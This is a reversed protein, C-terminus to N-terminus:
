TERGATTGAAQRQRFRGLDVAFPSGVARLHDLYFNYLVMPTVEGYDPHNFTSKYRVFGLKEYLTVLPDNCDIVTVPAERGIITRFAARTIQQFLGSRRYTRDIMLKSTFAVGGPHRAALGSFDYWDDRPMPGDGSFTIRCAGIVRDRADFAALNTSYEDMPEAIRKAAHDALRQKRRLESVYVQYRFAYLQELHRPDTVVVIRLAAANEHTGPANRSLGGGPRSEFTTKVRTDMM